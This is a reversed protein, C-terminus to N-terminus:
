NPLTAYRDIAAAQFAAGRLPSTPEFGVGEASRCAWHLCSRCAWHLCSRCAWHLCLSVGFYSHSRPVHIHKKAILFSKIYANGIIRFFSKCFVLRTLRKKCFLKRVNLKDVAFVIGCLAFWCWAFFLNLSPRMCLLLHQNISLQSIIKTSLKNFNQPHSLKSQAQRLSDWGKRWNTFSTIPEGAGVEGKPSYPVLRPSALRKEPFNWATKGARRLRPAPLFELLALLPSKKESNFSIM